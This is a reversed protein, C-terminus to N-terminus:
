HMGMLRAVIEDSRQTAKKFVFPLCLPPSVLVAMVVVDAAAAVAVVAAVAVPLEEGAVVM